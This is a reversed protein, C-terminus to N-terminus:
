RPNVSLYADIFRDMLDKIHNRVKESFDKYIAGEVGVSWTPVPRLLSRDRVLRADQVFEITIFCLYLGTKTKSIRPKVHLYPNALQRLGETDSLIKIGASDLKQKVDEEIQQQTLGEKVIESGLRDIKVYVGRLGILTARSRTSDGAFSQPGLTMLFLVTLILVFWIKRKDM